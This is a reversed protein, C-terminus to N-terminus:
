EKVAVWAPLTATPAHTFEIQDLYYTPQPVNRYSQIVLGNVQTSTILLSLPISVKRWTGAALPGPPQQYDDLNVILGYDNNPYTLNFLLEQGGVAGGNIYFEIREYSSVDFAQERHLYLGAYAVKYTVALSRDGSHVPARNNGDVRSDWSWDQWDGFGDGLIVLSGSVATAVSVPVSTPRAPASTQDASAVSSASAPVSTPSSQVLTATPLLGAVSTPQGSVAGQQNNLLFFALLGIGLVALGAISLLLPVGSRPPTTSPQYPPPVLTTKGVPQSLPTGSNPLPALLPSRLSAGEGAALHPILEHYYAPVLAPQEMEVLFTAVEQPRDAPDYTLAHLLAPLVPSQLMAATPQQGPVEGCLLYYVTAALAYIDSAPGKRGFAQLQEPPSFGLTAFVTQRVSRNTEFERAAGFDILVAQGQPTIIVNSPKIDRHLLNSNHLLQLAGALQRTFDLTQALGLSGGQAAVYADLTQGEVFKMVMYATNNADFHDYVTVIAPHDLHALTRAEQLFSAIMGAWREASYGSPTVVAGAVRSGGALFLEKVAVKRGLVNDQGAYTVGFGGMGLPAALTYRGHLITGATLVDDDAV